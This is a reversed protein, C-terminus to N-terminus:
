YFRSIYVKDFCIKKEKFDLISKYHCEDKLIMNNHLGETLIFSGITDVISSSIDEKYLVSVVIDYIKSVINNTVNDKYHLECWRSIELYVKELVKVREEKTLNSFNNLCDKVIINDSKLFDISLNAIDIPKIYNTYKDGLKYVTTIGLLEVKYSKFFNIVLEVYKKIYDISVSPFRSFVTKYEDTNIYQDLFFIVDDCMNFIYTQREKEDTISKIYTLSNYLDSDRYHLYDTYTKPTSGTELQFFKQNCEVIMLSDYITKYIDYIRKNPANAMQKIVHNYVNKNNTFLNLFQKYSSITSSGDQWGDIGLEEMTFGESEIYDKLAMIDARFNFGKIYLVKGTTDIIDDELGNYLYTMAILYVFIDNMKFEKTENLVPVPLKLREEILVDDFIM